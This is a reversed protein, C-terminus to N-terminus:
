PEFDEFWRDIYKRWEEKRHNRSDNCKNLRSYCVQKSVDQYILDAGLRNALQERDFRRPYGGVIWANKFKGHRNEIQELLLNKVAFVNFKLCDEKDYREAYSVAEFLRDIDVVLDGDSLHEEVYTTKGSFPPGYVIHVARVARKLEIKNCNRDSTKNHCSHCLVQLKDPNLSVNVNNVNEMTLKEIHHLHISKSNVISKGCMECINGRELIIQQRLNLWAPSDYFNKVSKFMM